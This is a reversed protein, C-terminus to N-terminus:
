GESEVSVNEVADFFEDERESEEPTGFYGSDSWSQVVGAGALKLAQVASRLSPTATHQRRLATGFSPPVAATSALSRAGTATPPHDQLQLPNAYRSRRRQRSLEEPSPAVSRPSVGLSLNGSSSPVRGMVGQLWPSEDAPLAGSMRIEEGRPDWATSCRMRPQSPVRVGGSPAPRPFLSGLPVDEPISEMLGLPSSSPLPTPMSWRQEESVRLPAGRRLMRRRMAVDGAALAGSRVMRRVLREEASAGGGRVDEVYEMLSSGRRLAGMEMAQAREAALHEPMSAGTGRITAITHAGTSEPICPLRYDREPRLVRPNRVEAGQLDRRQPPLLTQGMQLVRTAAVEAGSVIYRARLHTLATQSPAPLRDAM